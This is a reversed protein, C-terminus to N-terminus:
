KQFREYGKGNELGDYEYIKYWIGELKLEIIVSLLFQGGDECLRIIFSQYCFFFIWLVNNVIFYISFVAVM